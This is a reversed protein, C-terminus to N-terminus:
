HTTPPADAQNFVAATHEADERSLGCQRAMAIVLPEGTTLDHVSYGAPDPRIVFRNDTPPRLM